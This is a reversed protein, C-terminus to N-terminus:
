GIERRRAEIVDDFFGDEPEIIDLIEGGMFGYACEPDNEPLDKLYQVVKATVDAPVSNHIVIPGNPIVDSRWIEVMESMDVLGSDVAKRFAGSNFGQEWDGQGDAWSVGGDYDGNYVGVITQEHGGSFVIESFYEGAEMSYGARPIQISPILYGSTSNPDGFAFVKGEMDDLSAIGSDVRAFGISHYGTSGDPNVPILVPTVSDADELYAKAYGSAGLWAMDINGGLLAEIVGDYDAPAFLEVDVGLLNHLGEELCAHSKLRDSQNEGGLIGVRFEDIMDEALAPGALVSATVAAVALKTMTHM